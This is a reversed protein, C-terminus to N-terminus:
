QQVVLGIQQDFTLKMSTSQDTNKLLLTIELIYGNDYETVDLQTPVARPDSNCIRNIDDTLARRTDETLPEMLLDWIICGFNPNMVREGPRTNFINLIDQKILEIDYIEVSTSDRGVSSFGKYFQSQKTATQSVSTANNIEINKYAM